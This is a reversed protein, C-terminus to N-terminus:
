PGRPVGGEAGVLVQPELLAARKAPHRAAHTTGQRSSWSEGISAGGPSDHTEVGKIANGIQRCVDSLGGLDVIRRDIRHDRGRPRIAGADQYEVVTADHAELGPTRQRVAVPPRDFSM